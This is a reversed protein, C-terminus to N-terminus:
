ITLAQSVGYQEHIHGFLHYQPMQFEVQNMIFMSGIHPNSRGRVKRAM